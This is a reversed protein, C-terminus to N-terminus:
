IVNIQTITDPNSDNLLDRYHLMYVDEEESQTQVMQGFKPM